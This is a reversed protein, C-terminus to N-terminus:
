DVSEEAMIHKVYSNFVQPKTVKGTEIHGKFLNQFKEFAKLMITQKRAKEDNAYDHNCCELENRAQKEVIEKSGFEDEFGRVYKVFVKGVQRVSCIDKKVSAKIGINQPTLITGHPTQGKDQYEKVM